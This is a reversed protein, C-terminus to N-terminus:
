LPHLTKKRKKKLSEWWHRRCIFKGEWGEWNEWGLGMASQLIFYVNSTYVKRKKFMVIYFTLQHHLSTHYDTKRAKRANGSYLCKEM